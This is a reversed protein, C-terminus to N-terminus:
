EGTTFSPAEIPRHRVTHLGVGIKDQLVASNKDRHVSYGCKPCDHWRDSLKKREEKPPRHGCNACDQSTYAPNIEYFERGASEAKSKLIMRFSYWGADLISKNLGAKAAHGNLLFRGTEMDLKPAPSKSMNAINLDEVTIIGYVDVIKRAEQHHFNHRRNRIREHIRSVAKKAKRRPKSKHKHKVKDFKRQAKALAKQDTRFFRPNEISPTDDSFTAFTELGVDLGVSKDLFPLPDVEVECSVTAFWKGSQRRITCTKLVGPIDRHLIAKITALKSFSISNEGVQFGSAQPYTISDYCGRGKPRPPSPCKENEKLRGQAERMRYDQLRDFYSQYALDVRHCVDQLVLSQVSSLEPHDVKWLPLAKQQDYRSPSTGFLDYDHKRWHLFSNYIERCTGLIDCLITEQSKIPYLRFKIAKHLKV